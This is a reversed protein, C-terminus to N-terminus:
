NEPPALRAVLHAWIVAASSTALPLTIWVSWWSVLLATVTYGASAWLGICWWCTLFYVFAPPDDEDRVLTDVDAASAEDALYLWRARTPDTDDLARASRRLSRRMLVVRAPRMIRDTTWLQVLRHVALTHVVVAIADVHALGAWANM